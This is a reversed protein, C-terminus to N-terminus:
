THKHGIREAEGLAMRVMDSDYKEQRQITAMLDQIEMLREADQDDHEQIRFRERMLREQADHMLKLNTLM